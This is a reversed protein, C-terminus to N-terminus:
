GILSSYVLQDCVRCCGERAQGKFINQQFKEPLEPSKPAHAM